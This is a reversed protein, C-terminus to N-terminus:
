AVIDEVLEGEVSKLLQAEALETVKGEILEPVKIKGTVASNILTAKYEKLKDIQQQQLDIAKDIKASEAKIHAVIAIQEKKPPVVLFRQALNNFRIRVARQRVANCIVQIYKALAMERLLFAFYEPIQEPSISDCVVYEPTCKGDSDSVGIAGEFADMSNLVLQGKRIGQYGQELIAETYGDLRRNSRLTVQGDRYSTVIGDEKRPLLRSQMFLYKFRKVHWHAPIEGIWDMGSSRMPANLNLGRTVANQILIQKREKLLTIQKEKIAVAQDIQSTKRDLFAAIATQEQFTPKLIHLELLDKPGLTSRVGAGLKNYVSNLYLDFYFYYAYKPAFDKSIKLRIYAPSMIGKEHVLGVRSTKLNELDILKFVLDNEDFLQYTAYDKPVLGEPNDPDNNVVGRLTLSLINKCRMSSNLQKLVKHFRKAPLLAWEHPIDELWEVGSDKYTEYKPMAVLQEIM